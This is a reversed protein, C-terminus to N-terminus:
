TGCWAIHITHKITVVVSGWVQQFLIRGAGTVYPGKRHHLLSLSNIDAQLYIQQCLTALFWEILYKGMYFSAEVLALSMTSKTWGCDGVAVLISTTM